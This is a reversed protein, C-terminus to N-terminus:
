IRDLFDGSNKNIFNCVAQKLRGIGRVKKLTFEEEAGLIKHVERGQEFLYKVTHRFYFFLGFRKGPFLRLCRGMRQPVRTVSAGAGLMFVAGIRKIDLGEDALTTAVLIDLDGERMQRIVKQRKKGTDKGTLYESEELMKKLIKGHKIQQVLLLCPIGNDVLFLVVDAVQRNFHDNNVITQAYISRYSTNGGADADVRTSFIHGPVLYKKRILYSASVDVIKKGFLGQVVMDEGDDREPTASGGFKYYANDAAFIVEQCTKAAAHHVEDFYFGRCESLMQKVREANTETFISDENWIDEIDFKYESPKFDRDNSHLCSVLTQVTCVTVDKIDCIGDGVVGIDVNLFHELTDRAQYMLDKTLVMFLFPRAQLVAIIKTAILTKGGGTAVRLIGRTFDVSRSVAFEQYPREDIDQANVFRLEPFNKEPRSRRDEIDYEVDNAKLITRVISLLGTMFIRGPEYLSVLGDWKGQKYAPMHQYNKKQYSLALSVEREVYPSVETAIRSYKSGVILRVM